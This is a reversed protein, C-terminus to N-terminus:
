DGLGKILDFFVTDSETAEGELTVKNVADRFASEGNAYQELAQYFDIVGLVDTTKTPEVHKKIYKKLEGYNYDLITDGQTDQGYHKSRLLRIFEIHITNKMVVRFGPLSVNAEMFDLDSAEEWSLPQRAGSGDSSSWPKIAWITARFWESPDSVQENLLHNNGGALAYESNSVVEQDLEFKGKTSSNIIVWESIGLLMKKLGNPNEGGLNVDDIPVDSVNFAKQPILDQLETEHKLFEIFLSWLKKRSTLSKQKAAIEQIEVFREPTGDFQVVGPLLKVADEVRKMFNENKLYSSNYFHRNGTQEIKTTVGRAAYQWEEVTPITVLTQVLRDGNENNILSTLKRCFFIVNDVSAIMPSNVSDIYAELEISDTIVRNARDEQAKINGVVGEYVAQSVETETITFNFVGTPEDSLLTKLFDPLDSDEDDESIETPPAGKHPEFEGGVVHKFKITVNNNLKVIHDNGDKIIDFDAYINSTFLLIWIIPVALYLYNAVLLKICCKM